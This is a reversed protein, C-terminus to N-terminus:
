SGMHALAFVPLQCRGSVTTAYPNRARPPVSQYHTPALYSATSPRPISTVHPRHDPPPLTSLTLYSSDLPLIALSLSIGPHQEAAEPIHSGPLVTGPSYTHLVSYSYCTFGADGGGFVASEGPGADLGSVRLWTYIRHPKICHWTM